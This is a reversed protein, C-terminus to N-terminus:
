VLGELCQEECGGPLPAIHSTPPSLPSIKSCGFPAQTLFVSRVLLLQEGWEGLVETVNVFVYMFVNCVIALRPPLSGVSARSVCNCTEFELFPHQAGLFPSWTTYGAWPLGQGLGGREEPNLKDLISLQRLYTQLSTVQAAPLQAPQASGLWESSSLLSDLSSCFGWGLAPHGM